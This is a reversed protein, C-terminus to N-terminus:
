LFDIPPIMWSGLVATFTIFESGLIMLFLTFKFSFAETIISSYLTPESYKELDLVFIAIHLEVSGRMCDHSPWLYTHVLVEFEALDGYM